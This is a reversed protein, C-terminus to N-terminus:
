SDLRMAVPGMGGEQYGSQLRWGPVAGSPLRFPSLNGLNETVRLEPVLWTLRVTQRVARLADLETAAVLAHVLRGVVGGMNNM